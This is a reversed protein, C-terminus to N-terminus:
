VVSVGLAELSVSRFRKSETSGTMEIKAIKKGNAKRQLPELCPSETSGTSRPSKLSQRDPVVSLAYVDSM